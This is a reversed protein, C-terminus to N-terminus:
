LSEESGHRWGQWKPNAATRRPGRRTGLITAELSNVGLFESTEGLDYVGGRPRVSRGASIV